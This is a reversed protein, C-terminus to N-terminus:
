GHIVSSEQYCSFKMKYMWHFFVTLVDCTSVFSQWSWSDFYVLNLISCLNEAHDWRDFKSWYSCLFQLAHGVRSWPSFLWFWSDEWGTAAPQIKADTTLKFDFNQVACLCLMNWLSKKFFNVELGRDNSFWYRILPYSWFISSRSPDVSSGAIRDLSVRWRIGQKSLHWNIVVNIDLIHWARKARTAAGSYNLDFLLSTHWLDTLKLACEHSKLSLSLSKLPFYNAFLGLTFWIKCRTSLRIHGGFFQLWRRYCKLSMIARSWLLNPRSFLNKSFLDPRIKSTRCTSKVFDQWSIQSRTFWGKISKICWM